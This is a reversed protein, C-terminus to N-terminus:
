LFTGVVFFLKMAGWVLATYEPHHNILVDMIGSYHHIRESFSVLADRVKSSGKQGEYQAQADQVSALVSDVSIHKPNLIWALKEHSNKIEAVFANRM